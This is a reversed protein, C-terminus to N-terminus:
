AHDVSTLAWQRPKVGLYRHREGAHRDVKAGVQRNSFLRTPLRTSTPALLVSCLQLMATCHLAGRVEREAAIHLDEEGAHVLGTPMKWIGTGRL